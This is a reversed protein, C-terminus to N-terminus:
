RSPRKHHGEVTSSSYSRRPTRRPLSTTCGSPKWASRVTSCHRTRPPSPCPLSVPSHTDQQRRESPQGGTEPYPLTKRRTNIHTKHLVVIGIGRTVTPLRETHWSVRSRLETRNRADTTPRDVLSFPFHYRTYTRWTTVHYAPVSPGGVVYFFFRVKPPPLPSSNRM